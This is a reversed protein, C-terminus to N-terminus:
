SFTAANKSAGNNMCDAERIRGVERCSPLSPKHRQQKPQHALPADQVWIFRHAQHHQNKALQYRTPTPGYQVQTHSFILVTEDELVKNHLGGKDDTVRPM